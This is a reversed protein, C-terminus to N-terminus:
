SFASVNMFRLCDKKLSYIEKKFLKKRVVPEAATLM